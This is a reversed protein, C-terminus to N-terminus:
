ASSWARERNVVCRLKTRQDEMTVVCVFMAALILAHPGFSCELHAWEHYYNCVGATSREAARSRCAREPRPMTHLRQHGLHHSRGGIGFGVGASLCAVSIPDTPAKVTGHKAQHECHM